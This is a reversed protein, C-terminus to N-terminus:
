SKKTFDRLTTMTKHPEEVFGMHGTNDLILAESHQPLMIQALSKDLPIRSDQKGVIFLIPFTAEILTSLSSKRLGMGNLAAIIGEASTQMSETQMEKIKQAMRERNQPAFLEPVFQTIFGQRNSRVINITRERNERAVATDASAHSHFLVLGTVKAPYKKAFALSVYGGMSHGTIVCNEINEAQLIAAVRDAMFEMTHTDGFTSSQGHGPLDPAIITFDESLIEMFSNWIDKSELFGHLLVLCKGHGSINYHITGNNYSLQKEMNRNKCIYLVNVRPMLQTQDKKERM